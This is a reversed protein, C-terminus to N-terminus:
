WGSQFELIVSISLLQLLNMSERPVVAVLGVVVLFFYVDIAYEFTPLLIGDRTGYM